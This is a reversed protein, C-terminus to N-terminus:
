HQVIRKSKQLLNQTFGLIFILAAPLCFSSICCCFCVWFAFYDNEREKKGCIRAILVDKKKNKCMTKFDIEKRKAKSLISLRSFFLSVNPSLHSLLLVQLTQMLVPLSRWKILCFYLLQHMSTVIEYKIKPWSLVQKLSVKM